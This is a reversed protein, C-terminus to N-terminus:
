FSISCGTMFTRASPYFGRDIGIELSGNINGIEPDYGSYNTFTILNQASVYVKVQSLRVKTLMTVPLYYSLQLTKLRLYSGDEVFRDSVRANQNPDNLNVRPQSNSTGPGTWRELVSSPRNVYTFDYRTTSNYIDNGQSGQAFLSLEFNKYKMEANFGYTFDPTPNGIITRDNQDIIGNGDLDKFKIDGPATGENQRAHSEVEQQTQFIGETVFGYFSAIPYGVDTIAANANASQVYGSYVPQGGLGLGTVKSDVLSLNGGVSYQLAHDSNRYTLSFEWGSNLATAVNQIPANTGAVLPIPAAYLMDSTKKRYYDVTANVRGELLEVDVGVDTQTSTEWKLDPNPSTLAVSGNTIIEGPGFAYNQGKEVITTFSYDGIRDNGNQGWSARVKLNSITPWQWFDEATVKWGASFSPFYGFRNNRGFRSSGDARLTASFLYKDDLGYYAKGFYSLLSSEYAYQYATQSAIPDITNSIFADKVDNSPLNTNGGGSGDFRNALASTGTILTLKHRDAFATQWTFFNEWQWNRWQNNGVGVSNVRNKEAAPAESVSPVNSLDFRPNFTRQIAFTADMSASSRFSLGKGLKIDAYANGVIRNSTWTNHTQYIGNVPNAIDTDAYTSYAFTGDAKYVPTVPDMNLARIIPSNYQSNETLGNRKLWTFALNSGLTLWSKTEHTNNLRVTARQFNAKPGGVIGDQTFYNASLTYTSKPGGGTATIQHSMIPATEFIAEQWDTGEGLASPNNFEPLPTKGAAIYAENQLTAYERANLLDILRAVRQVGYYFDYSITGQKEKSGKKTTILVVGNAGRSGYIASSAADKLIDINEIDNPNLFDLGDVAVGDVIYLPDSNNITGIGRIRVTLPSGPSGSSQAVQVGAVKGQLAQEVRLIPREALDKSKISAVSGSIESRKQTTYGVVVVEDLQSSNEALTVDITTRDGVIEEVTTYGIYSFVLVDAKSKVELSYKGDLDTITGNDTGKIYVSVGIAADTNDAFRVVGTITQAMVWLPSMLLFLYFIKKM